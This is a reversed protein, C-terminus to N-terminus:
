QPWRSSEILNEKTILIDAYAQYGYLLRSGAQWIIHLIYIRPM